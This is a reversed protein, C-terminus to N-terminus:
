KVRHEKEQSKENWFDCRPCATSPILCQCVDWTFHVRHLLHQKRRRHEAIACKEVALRRGGAAGEASFVLRDAEAKRAADKHTASGASVTAAGNTSLDDLFIVGRATL